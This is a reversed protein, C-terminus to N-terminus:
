LGVAPGNEQMCSAKSEDMAESFISNSTMLNGWSLQWAMEIAIAFPVALAM